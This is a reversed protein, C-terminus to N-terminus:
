VGIGWVEVGLVEFRGKGAGKGSGVGDEESLPENGFTPCTASVGESLNRGLWLGYHGDGGGVSLYEPQCFITFDNEGSYPFAKFRIRDSTTPSSPPHPDQNRNRDQQQQHQQANSASSASAAEISGDRVADAGSNRRSLASTAAITTIRADLHTTDASPPPPLGSLDLGELDPLLNTSSALSSKPLISAKWLFCEGSGYYSPQPRPAESLYAGFVGARGDRVVLVFGGRKGRHADCLAYLTSLTSGHQELSYILNWRETLQLRPPTLLRVEEAVARHLLRARPSTTDRYGHLSLPTLPPPQFPSLRRRPPHYVDGSSSPMTSNYNASLAKALPTPAEDISIRRVLGSITYAVPETFYSITSLIGTPTSAAPPQFPPRARPSGPPAQHRSSSDGHSSSM